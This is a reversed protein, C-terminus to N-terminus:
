QWYSSSMFPAWRQSAVAWYIFLPKDNKPSTPLVFWRWSIGRCTLVMVLLAAELACFNSDPQGVTSLNLTKSGRKWLGHKAELSLTVNNIKWCVLFFSCYSGLISTAYFNGFTQSLLIPSPSSVDNDLGHLCVPFPVRCPAVYTHTHIIYVCVHM